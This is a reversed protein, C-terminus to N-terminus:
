KVCCCVGQLCSDPHPLHPSALRPLHASNPQTIEVCIWRSDSWHKEGWHQQNQQFVGSVDDEWERHEGWHLDSIIIYIYIYNDAREWKLSLNLWCYGLNQPLTRTVGNVCSLKKLSSMLANLVNDYNCTILQINIFSHIFLNMCCRLVSSVWWMM